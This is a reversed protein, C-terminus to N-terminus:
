RCAGASQAAEFPQLPHLRTMRQRIRAANGRPAARELHSLARVAGVREDHEERAARRRQHRHRRARQRELVLSGRYVRKELPAGVDGRQVRNAFMQGGHFASPERCRCRPWGDAECDGVDDTVIEADDAGARGHGIRGCIAVRPVVDIAEAHLLQDRLGGSIVQTGSELSRNRLGRLGAIRAQLSRHRADDAATEVRHVARGLRGARQAVVDHELSSGMTPSARVIPGTTSSLARASAAPLVRGTATM